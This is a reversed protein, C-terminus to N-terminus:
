FIVGLVRIANWSLNCLSQALLGIMRPAAATATDWSLALYGDLPLNAMVSVPPSIAAVKPLPSSQQRFLLPLLICIIALCLAIRVLKSHM